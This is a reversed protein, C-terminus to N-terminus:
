TIPVARGWGVKQQSLRSHASSSSSSLSSAHQDGTCGARIESCLTLLNRPDSSVPTCVEGRDRQIHDLQASSTYSIHTRKSWVYWTKQDNFALALKTKWLELANSLSDQTWCCGFAQEHAGTRVPQTRHSIPCLAREGHTTDGTWMGAPMVGIENGVERERERERLWAQIFCQNIVNLSSHLTEEWQTHRQQTHTYKEQPATVNAHWKLVLWHLKPYIPSCSSFLFMMPEERLSCIHQNFTNRVQSTNM